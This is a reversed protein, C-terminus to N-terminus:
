RWGQRENGTIIHAEIAKNVADIRSVAGLKAFIGRLHRKVTAETLSLRATIQANSLAAATLVLVDHERQTLGGGGIASGALSAQSVALVLRDPDACVARLNAVLETHSISKLLYGRIGMKILQSLLSPNDYMSLVVVRTRPAGSRLQRVTEAVGPGPLEVDLLVIDPQTQIVQRVGDPGTGAEAVVAFDPHTELIRRTGDRFLVHDDVLVIRIARGATGQDATM